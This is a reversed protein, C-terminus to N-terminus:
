ALLVVVEDLGLRLQEFDDVADVGLRALHERLGELLDAVVEAGHEGLDEAAAFGVQNQHVLVVHQFAADVDHGARGPLCNCVM